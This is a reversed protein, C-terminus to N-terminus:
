ASSSSNSKQGVADELSLYPSSLDYGSIRMPKGFKAEQNARTTIGENCTHWNPPVAPTLIGLISCLSFGLQRGEM